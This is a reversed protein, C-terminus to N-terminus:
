VLWSLPSLTHLHTSNPKHTTNINEMTRQENFLAGFIAALLTGNQEMVSGGGLIPQCCQSDIDFGHRAKAIAIQSAIVDVDMGM